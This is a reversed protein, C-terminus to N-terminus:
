EVQVQHVEVINGEPDQFFIQHWGDVATNGWDAFPINNATLQQKLNELEDTRFAIHGNVLPNIPHGTKFGAHVDKEALHIQINGDTVFAVDGSYGKTKDLTPLGTTERTLGLVNQYFADMETVNVTSLNVHHFKLKM